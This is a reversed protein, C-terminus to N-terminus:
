LAWAKKFRQPLEVGAERFDVIMQGQHLHEHNVITMMENIFKEARKDDFTKLLEELDRMQEELKQAIIEESIDKKELVEEGQVLVGYSLNKHGTM